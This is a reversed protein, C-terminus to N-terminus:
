FKLCEAKPDFVSKDPTFMKGNHENIEDVYLDYFIDFTDKKCLDHGEEELFIFIDSWIKYMEPMKRKNEKLKKYINVNIDYQKHINDKKEKEIKDSKKQQENYFVCFLKVNEEENRNDRDKSEYILEYFPLIDLYEKSRYKKVFSADQVELIDEHIKNTKDKLKSAQLYIEKYVEYVTLIKERDISDKIKEYEVIKKNFFDDKKKVIKVIEVEDTSDKVIKNTKIAMPLVNNRTPMNKKIEQTIISGISKKISNLDNENIMVCINNEDCKIQMVELNLWVKRKTSDDLQVLYIHNELDNNLSTISKKVENKNLISLYIKINDFYVNMVNDLNQSKHIIPYTSFKNVLEYYM